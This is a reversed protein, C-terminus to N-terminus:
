KVCQLKEKVFSLVTFIAAILAMLSSFIMNIMENSEMQDIEMQIIHMLQAFFLTLILISLFWASITKMVVLCVVMISIAIFLWQLVWFILSSILAMFAFAMRTDKAYDKKYFIFTKLLCFMNSINIGIHKFIKENESHEKLGITKQWNKNLTEEETEILEEEKKKSEIIAETISKALKDYDIETVKINPEQFQKNKKKRM